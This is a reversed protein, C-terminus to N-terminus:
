FTYRLKMWLEDRDRILSLGPEISDQYAHDGLRNGPPGISNLAEDHFERRGMFLAAGWSISFNESYRYTFSLTAAGSVSQVDYVFLLTPLLRDQFYGTTILFIGLINYPGQAYFSKQYGDVYQFFWQSTIFFTRNANLVNVFTPRDVSITLNFTDADTLGNVSSSDGFSINPIWTWEVGWSSKSYDEAFDMGFGLVNRKEYTLLIEGGGHFAATRRGFTGNGGAFVSRPGQGALGLIGGIVSSPLYLRQFLRVKVRLFKGAILLACLGSFSTVIDM